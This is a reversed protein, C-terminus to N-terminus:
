GGVARPVRWAGRRAPRPGARHRACRPRAEGRGGMRRASRRSPPRSGPRTRSPRSGGGDPRTARAPGPCVRLRRAGPGTGGARPTSHGPRDRGRSGASCRHRARRSRAPFWSPEEALGPGHEAVRGAGRLAPELMAGGGLVRDLLAPPSAEARALAAGGYPLPGRTQRVRYMRVPQSVGRLERTGVEELEVEARNMSLQVAETLWFRALRRRTSWDRPSTSRSASSTEASSACRGSTSERRRIVLRESEPREGAHRALRDQMAMGCLVSDTPSRFTLLLADGISKVRRGGFARVVPAPAPRARRPAPREGRPDSALNTRHLRRHRHLRDGPERHAGLPQAGRCRPGPPESGPAADRPLTMSSGASAAGLTGTARSARSRHARRACRGRGAAELEQEARGTSGAMAEAVLEAM